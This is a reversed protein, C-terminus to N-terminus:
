CPQCGVKFGLGSNGPLELNAIQLVYAWVCLLFFIVCFVCYFCLLLCVCSFLSSLIRCLSLSPSRFWLSLSLHHWKAWQARLYNLSPSIQWLIATNTHQINIFCIFSNHALQQWEYMEPKHVKANSDLIWDGVPTRTSTGVLPKTCYWLRVTKSILLLSINKIYHCVM